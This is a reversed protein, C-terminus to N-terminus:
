RLRDLRRAYDDLWQKRFKEITHAGKWPRTNGCKGHDSNLDRWVTGSERRYRGGWSDTEPNNPDGSILYLFSFSDGMKMWPRGHDITSSHDDSINIFYNGLAGHGAINHKMWDFRSYGPALCDGWFGLGTFDSIIWWMGHRHNKYLYNFSHPRVIGDLLGRNWGASFIVRIHAKISPESKIAQAVDDIAGWVVIWLPRTDGRAIGEKVKQIIHRSGQTPHNFGEHPWDSLEGQKLMSRLHGPTPYGKFNKLRRNYDNAYVNIISGIHHARGTGHPSSIIGEIDFEDAYTLFHVMSQNDDRDPGGLDTSVIIRPKTNKETKFNLSDINAVYGVSGNKDFAIKLIHKGASLQVEGLDLTTFTTWNSNHTKPINVSSVITKDDMELHLKSGSNGSAYTLDLYYKRTQAIDVTYELWEGAHTSGVSHGGGPADKGIDVGEDTRLKGGSNVADSDSYAVGEGGKDFFEAEIKGPIAQPRYAEQKDVVPLKKYTATLSVERNVVVTTEAAFIELVDVVDGEWRNFEFGTAATNARITLQTGELFEGQTGKGVITGNSIFVNHFVEEPPDVPKNKYTATVSLNKAPMTLRTSSDQNNDFSVSSSSTWQDFLKGAPASNAILTVKKGAQYNGSGLGNIVSLRFTTPEPKPDPKTDPRSGGFSWLTGCILIFCNLVLLNKFLTQRM